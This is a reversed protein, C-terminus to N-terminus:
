ARKQAYVSFRYDSAPGSELGPIEHHSVIRTREWGLRQAEAVFLEQPLYLHDLQKPSLWDRHAHTAKRRAMAADIKAADSIEGIYIQGRPKTVRDLEAIARRVDAESDLYLLVGFSCALDVSATAVGPCDCIDGVSFNGPLRQRALEVLSAAYDIGAVGIGPERRRLSALFTGAGCGLEVVNMGPALRLPAVLADIMREWSEADLMDYGNTVYPADGSRRGKAEWIEKWDHQRSM